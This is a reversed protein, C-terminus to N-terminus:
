RCARPSPAPAYEPSQLVEDADERSKFPEQRAFMDVFNHAPTWGGPGRRHRTLANGAAIAGCLPARRM